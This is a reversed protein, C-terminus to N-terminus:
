ARGRLALALDPDDPQRAPTARRRGRGRVNRRRARSPQAGRVRPRDDSRRSLAIRWRRMGDMTRATSRLLSTMEVVPTALLARATERPHETSDLLTGAFVVAAGLNGEEVALGIVSTLMEIQAALAAAEAATLKGSLLAAMENNFDDEDSNTTSFLWSRM